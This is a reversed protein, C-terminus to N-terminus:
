AQNFLILQLLFLKFKCNYNNPNVNYLLINHFSQIFDNIVFMVQDALLFTIIENNV